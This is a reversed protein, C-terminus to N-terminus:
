VPMTRSVKLLDEAEQEDEDIYLLRAAHATFRGNGATSWGHKRNAICDILSIDLTYSSTNTDLWTGDIRVYGHFMTRKDNIDSYYEVIKYDSISHVDFVPGWSFYIHDGIPERLMFGSYWNNLIIKELASNIDEADIAGVRIDKYKLGDINMIHDDIEAIMESHSPCAGIITNLRASYCYFRM